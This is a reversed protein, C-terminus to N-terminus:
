PTTKQQQLISEIRSQYSHEIDRIETDKQVLLVTKEQEKKMLLENYYSDKESLKVLSEKEIKSIEAQHELILQNFEKQKLHELQHIKENFEQTQLEISKEHTTKTCQLENELNSITNLLETNIEKLEKYQSLQEESQTLKVTLMSNIKEKDELAAKAKQENDTADTATKILQIMRKDTEDLTSKLNSIEIDKKEILNQLEIIQMDKSDLRQRFTELLREETSEAIELSQLYASLVSKIHREFETIETEREPISTKARDIELVQMLHDFGQAQDMNNDKCFARFADATESDIRFNTQKVEGM